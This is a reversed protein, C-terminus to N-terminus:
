KDEAGDNDIDSAVDEDAGDPVYGELLFTNDGEDEINYTKVKELKSRIKETKRNASAITNQVNELKKSTQQLLGSFTDFEKVFANLIKGIETSRKEIAVSRFGMQLSNLLAALTTPGCVVVRCRNQLDETLGHRKVVEAFLGEVPLYLIAFDTTKPPKIYKDRISQAEQKIRKELAKGAAEVGDADAQESAEILRQYDELPFKSDIPLVVEGDGKGPLKIAFDVPERGTRSVNYQREFQEETLLQSLLNELAVEGWTGRTKVNKFIGKLDNVGSQLTQLEGFSKNLQELRDGVLKFSQNFRTELTSSLKEDVTQRMKELQAANNEQIKALSKVNDDRVATLTRTNDARVESLNKANEERMKDMKGDVAGMFSDFRVTIDRTSQNQADVKASLANIAGTIMSNELKVVSETDRKINERSKEDIAGADSTGASQSRRKIYFALLAVAALSLATNIALLVYVATM